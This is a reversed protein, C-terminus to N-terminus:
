EEEKEEVRSIWVFRLVQDSSVGGAMVALMGENDYELCIMNIFSNLLGLPTIGNRATGPKGSLVLLTHGQNPLPLTELLMKSFTVPDRSLEINLMRMAYSFPAPAERHVEYQHQEGDVTFMYRIPPIDEEREDPVEREADMLTSIADIPPVPAIITGVLPSKELLKANPLRFTIGAYKHEVMHIAPIVVPEKEPPEKDMMTVKGVARTNVITKGMRIPPPPDMPITTGGGLLTKRAIPTIPVVKTMPYEQVGIISEHLPVLGDCEIHSPDSQYVVNSFRVTDGATAIRRPPSEMLPIGAELAPILHISTDPDVRTGDVHYLEHGPIVKTGENELHTFTADPLLQRPPERLLSSM